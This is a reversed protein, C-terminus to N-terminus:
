NNKKDTPKNNKKDTPKNKKNNQKNAPRKGRRKHGGGRPGKRREASKYEPADGLGEPLPTKPVEKELFREIQQFRRIDDPNVLTIAVGDRDARCRYDYLREEIGRREMMAKVAGNEGVLTLPALLRQPLQYYDNSTIEM